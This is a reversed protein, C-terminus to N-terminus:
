KTVTKEADSEGALITLYIMYTKNDKEQLQRIYEPTWGYIKSMSEM